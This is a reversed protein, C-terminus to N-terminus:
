NLEEYNDSTVKIELEIRAGLNIDSGESSTVSKEPPKTPRAPPKPPRPPKPPKPPRGPKRPRWPKGKLPVGKNSARKHKALLFFGPYYRPRRKGTVQWRGYPMFYDPFEKFKRPIYRYLRIKRRGSTTLKEDGKGNDKPSLLKDENSWSKNVGKVGLIIGDKLGVNLDNESLAVHQINDRRINDQTYIERKPLSAAVRQIVIDTWLVTIAAVTKKNM